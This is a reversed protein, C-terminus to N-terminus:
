KLEVQSKSILRNDQFVATIVGKDGNKWIYEVTSGSNSAETGAWGFTNSVQVYSMGEHICNQYIAMTLASYPLHCVDTGPPPNGALVALTEPTTPRPTGKIVAEADRAEFDLQEYTTGLIPLQKAVLETNEPAATPSASELTSAVEESGAGAQHIVTKSEKSQCSVLVTCAMLSVIGASLVPFFKM